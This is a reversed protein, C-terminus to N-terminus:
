ERGSPPEDTQGAGESGPREPMSEPREPEAEGAGTGGTEPREGEGEGARAGGTKPRELEREGPQSSPSEVAPSTPSSIATAPRGYDTLLWVVFLLVGMGPFFWQAGPQVFGAIWPLVVLAASVILEAVGHARLPVGEFMGMPFRTSLTLVLHAAALLYSIMAPVGGFQFLTPALAFTLVTVFDIVGHSHPSLTDHM